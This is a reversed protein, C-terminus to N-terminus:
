FDATTNGFLPVFYEVAVDMALEVMMRGHDRHGRQEVTPTSIIDRIAMQVVMNRRGDEVEVM